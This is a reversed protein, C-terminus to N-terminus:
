DVKIGVNLTVQFEHIKGDRIAGRLEAVEFWSMNKESEALRAVANATAEAYSNPSTGVVQIKKFVSNAM